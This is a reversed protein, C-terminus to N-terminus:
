TPHNRIGRALSGVAAARSLAPVPCIQKYFPCASGPAEGSFNKPRSKMMKSAISDICL